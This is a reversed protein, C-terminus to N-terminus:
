QYFYLRFACIGAGVLSAAAFAFAGGGGFIFGVIVGAVAYLLFGVLFWRTVRNKKM